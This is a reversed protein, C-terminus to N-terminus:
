SSQQQKLMEQQKQVSIGLTNSIQQKLQEIAKTVKDEAQMLDESLGSLQWSLLGIVTAIGLLLAIVSLVSALGRHFGKGELRRTLPLLLMTFLGAMAVPVLFPKAFYLGSIVLFLLFLVQIPRNLSQTQM